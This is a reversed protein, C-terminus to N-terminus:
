SRLKLMPLIEMLAIFYSLSLHSTFLDKTKFLQKANQNGRKAKWNDYYTVDRIFIYFSVFVFFFSDDYFFRRREKFM